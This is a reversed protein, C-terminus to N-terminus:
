KEKVLAELLALPDESEAVARLEVEQFEQPKSQNDLQNGLSLDIGKSMM